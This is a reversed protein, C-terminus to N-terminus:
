ASVEEGASPEVWGNALPYIANENLCDCCGVFEGHAGNATADVAFEAPDGCGYDCSQDGDYREIDHIVDIRVDGEPM